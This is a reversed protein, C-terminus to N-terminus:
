WGRGYWPLLTQKEYKLSEVFDPLIVAIDRMKAREGGAATVAAEHEPILEGAWPLGKPFDATLADLTLLTAEPYRDRMTGFGRVFLQMKKTSHLWLFGEVLEPHCVRVRTAYLDSLHVAAVPINLAYSLTNAFAVAVRLSTFGGPGIVCAIREISEQKWGADDLVKTFLPVLDSDSIRHDVAASAVVRSADICALSGMHSALNLFLTRFSM